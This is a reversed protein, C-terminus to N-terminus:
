AEFRSPILQLILNNILLVEHLPRSVEVLKDVSLRHLRVLKKHIKPARPSTSDSAERQSLYQELEVHHDILTLIEHPLSSKSTNQKGSTRRSPTATCPVLSNTSIRSTTVRPTIVIASKALPSNYNAVNSGIQESDKEEEDSDSDSNEAGISFAPFSIARHHFQSKVPVVIDTHSPQTHQQTQKALMHLGNAYSSSRGYHRQIPLAHPMPQHEQQTQQQQQKLYYEQKVVAPTSASVTATASRDTFLSKFSAKIKSASLKKTLNASQHQTSEAESTIAYHHQLTLGPM